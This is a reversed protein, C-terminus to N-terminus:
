GTRAQGAREKGPRGAEEIGAQEAARPCSPQQSVPEQLRLRCCRRRRHHCYRHHVRHRLLPFYPFHVAKLRTSPLCLIRPYGSNPSYGVTIPGLEYHSRTTRAPRPRSIRRTGACGPCSLGLATTVRAGIKKVGLTRPDTNRSAKERM